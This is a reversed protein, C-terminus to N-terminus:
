KRKLYSKNTLYSKKLIYSRLFYNEGDYGAGGLVLIKMVWVGGQLFNRNKRKM